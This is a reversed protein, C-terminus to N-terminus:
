FGMEELISVAEEIVKPCVEKQRGPFRSRAETDRVDYGLLDRCRVTGKRKLFEEMFASTIEYCRKAATSVLAICGL